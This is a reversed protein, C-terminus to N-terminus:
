EDIKVYPCKIKQEPKRRQCDTYERECVWNKYHELKMKLNSNEEILAICQNKSVLLEDQYTRLRATIEAKSAMEETLQKNIIDVQDGGSIVIDKMQNNLEIIIEHLQERAKHEGDQEAIKTEVEKLSAEACASRAESEKLKKSSSWYMLGTIVTSILSSGAIASLIEVIM